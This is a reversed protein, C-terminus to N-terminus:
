EDRPFTDVHVDDSGELPGRGSAYPNGREEAASAILKAYYVIIPWSVGALGPLTRPPHTAIAASELRLDGWRGAGLSARGTVPSLCLEGRGSTAAARSSRNARGALM